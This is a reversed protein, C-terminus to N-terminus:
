ESWDVPGRLEGALKGAERASRDMAVMRNYAIPKVHAIARTENGLAQSDGVHCLKTM